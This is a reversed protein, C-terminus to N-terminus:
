FAVANAQEQNDNNKCQMGITGVPQVGELAARVNEITAIGDMAQRIVELKEATPRSTRWVPRLKWIAMRAIHGFAICRIDGATPKMGAATLQALEKTM